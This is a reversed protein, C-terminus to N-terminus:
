SFPIGAAHCGGVIVVILGILVISVLLELLTFGQNCTGNCWSVIESHDKRQQTKEENEKIGTTKNDEDYEIDPVKRGAWKGPCLSM